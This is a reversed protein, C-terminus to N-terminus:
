LGAFGVEAGFRSFVYTGYVALIIAGHRRGLGGPHRWLLFLIMLTVLLLVPLDVWLTESEVIIPSILAAVGPALLTDLINSGMLNGISLGARKRLIAWSSLSLEPLSSGVGLIIVAITAESINYTEAISLVAGVTAETAALLLVFGGVLLAWSKPASVRTDEEEEEPSSRNFLLLLFFAGYALSLLLGDMRTMHSDAATAFLLVWSGILGAGFLKLSRRSTFVSGILCIAGLVLSIQAISSGIASGLAVGGETGNSLSRISADVAIALEPLDTGISLIALGVFTESLSFRRALASAGRVILEAGGALGLLGATLLFIDLM